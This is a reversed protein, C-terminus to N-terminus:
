QKIAILFFRGGEEKNKWKVKNTFLLSLCAM